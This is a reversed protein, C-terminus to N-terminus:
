RVKPATNEFESPWGRREQFLLYRTALSDELAQHIWAQGKDSLGQELVARYFRSYFAEPEVRLQFVLQSAGAQRPLDYELVATQGPALRTDAWEQALDLSLSWGIVAELQSGQLPEGEVGTQFVALILRPTAYTPLLHATGSNTLALAAGLGGKELTPGTIEIKVGASLMAPDHIGRFEHRRGPLHCSQCHKGEKAQPSVLWERYTNELLKGNVANGEPPFQHCAACFLSNEFAPHSQWGGHPLPAGPSLPPLDARRPPGHWQYHRLHCAACNVGSSHISASSERRTGHRMGTELTEAQEALPAHCDLCAQREEPTMDLLQGIVGAGMAQAHRSGSWAAFQEPHCAQCSQPDLSSELPSLGEPAPGQPALPRQWYDALFDQHTPDVDPTTMGVGAILM